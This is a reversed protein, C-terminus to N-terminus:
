THTRHLVLKYITNSVSDFKLNNKGQTYISLRKDQHFYHALQMVLEPETLIPRLQKCKEILEIIYAEM